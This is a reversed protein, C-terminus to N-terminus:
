IQYLSIRQHKRNVKLFFNRQKFNYLLLYNNGRSVIQYTWEEKGLLNEAICQYAGFDKKAIKSFRLYCIDNVIEDCQIIRENYKWIINPKPQGIVRCTLALSQGIEAALKSVTTEIIPRSQVILEITSSGNSTQNNYFRNYVVCTYLGSDNREVREIRLNALQNERMIQSNNKMWIIQYALPNSEFLCHLIVSDSRNVIIRSEMARVRPSDTNIFFLKTRKKEGYIFKCEVDLYISQNVKGISNEVICTYIGSQDSTLRPIYLLKEGIFVIM